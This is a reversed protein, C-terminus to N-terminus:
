EGFYRLALKIRPNVIQAMVIGMLAVQFRQSFIPQDEVNPLATNALVVLRRVGHRHMTSITHSIAVTFLDTSFPYKVFCFESKSTGPLKEVEAMGKAGRAQAKLGLPVLPM